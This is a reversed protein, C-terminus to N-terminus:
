YGLFDFYGIKVPIVNGPTQITVNDSNNTNAKNAAVSTGGFYLQSNAANLVPNLTPNSIFLLLAEKYASATKSNSLSFIDVTENSRMSLQLLIARASDLSARPISGNNKDVFYSITENSLFPFAPDIDQVEMRVATIQETTAM